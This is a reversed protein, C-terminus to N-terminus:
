SPVEDTEDDLELYREVSVGVRARFRQHYSEVEGVAEDLFVREVRFIPVFM